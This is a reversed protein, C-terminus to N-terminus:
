LDWKYIRCRSCSPFPKVKWFESKPLQAYWLFFIESKLTQKYLDFMLPDPLADTTQDSLLCIQNFGLSASYGHSSSIHFLLEIYNAHSWTICKGAGHQPPAAYCVTEWNTNSLCYIVTCSCKLGSQFNAPKKFECLIWHVAAAESSISYTSTFIKALCISRCPTFACYQTCWLLLIVQDSTAHKKFESCPFVPNHRVKQSNITM